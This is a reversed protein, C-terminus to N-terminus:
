KMIRPTRLPDRPHITHAPAEPASPLVRTSVSQVNAAIAQARVLSTATLQNPIRRGAAASGPHVRSSALASTLLANFEALSLATERTSTSPFGTLRVGDTGVCSHQAAAATGDTATAQIYGGADIGIVAQGGADHVRDVGLADREVRFAGEWLGVVPFVRYEPLVFLIWRQGVTITPAGAIRFTMTGITGGPVTLTLSTQGATPSPSGKWYDVSSLRVESVIERPDDSWYSQVSEVVADVVLAAHDALRAVPMPEVTTAAAWPVCSACAALACKILTANTRM